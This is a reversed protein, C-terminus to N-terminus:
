RSMKISCKNKHQIKTICANYMWIMYIPGKDSFTSLTRYAIEKKMHIYNSHQPLKIFEWKETNEKAEQANSTNARLVEDM